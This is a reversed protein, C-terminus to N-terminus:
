TLLLDWSVFLTKIIRFWRPSDKGNLPLIVKFKWFVSFSYNLLILILNRYCVEDIKKQVHLEYSIGLVVVLDKRFTRSIIWPRCLGCGTKLEGIRISQIWLKRKSRLLSPSHIFTWEKVELRELKGLPNRHTPWEGVWRRKSRHSFLLLLTLLSIVQSYRM